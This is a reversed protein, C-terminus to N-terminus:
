IREVAIVFSPNIKVKTFTEEIQKAYKIVESFAM